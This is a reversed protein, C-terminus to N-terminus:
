FDKVLRVACRCSKSNYSDWHNISINIEYCTNCWTNAYWGYSVNYARESWAEDAGTPIMTSSWYRSSWQIDGPSNGWSSVGTAPLFVAGAAEMLLWQTLSYVNSDFMSAVDHIYYSPIFFTGTPQNWNDPLLIYGRVGNVTGPAQLQDAYPRNYLLYSWEPESLTRWQGATNGGNAIPNHVGWDYQASTNVLNWDAVNVSPGYYGSNDGAQYPLYYRNNLDIPDHYGSTAWAFMDIWGNYTSSMNRNGEGRYDYQSIGFRWVDSSAKYQLNGKSFRVHRNESVSFVGPLTGPENILLSLSIISDCGANNVIAEMYDGSTSYSYNHWTFPGDSVITTDFYTCNCDRAGPVQDQVLRVSYNNSRNYAGLASANRTMSFCYAAGSGGSTSTWYFAIDHSWDGLPLFTAGSAELTLWEEMSYSNVDSSAAQPTFNVSVPRVWTDSLIIFGEIEKTGGNNDPVDRIRGLSFLYAANNRQHLLYDWEANTLLRWLGAGNGGNIIPNYQGWDYYANAGTLDTDAMTISPGYGYQNNQYAVSGEPASEKSQSWPLYNTNLTDSNNHWGSTGWGFLDSWTPYYAAACTIGLMDYQHEAFRWYNASSLYQLNGHAFLVQRGNGVSYLGPAAGIGADGGIMLHLTYISDCGNVATLTDGYDGQETYTHGRWTIGTTTRVATDHQFMPMISVCVKVVSDCGGVAINGLSHEHVGESRLTAGYWRAYGCVTLTATDNESRISSCDVGGGAVITLQLTDVSPCGYMNLYSYTYRGSASFVSDHWRYSGYGTATLFNYTGVRVALHLTDVSFFGNVNSYDYTYTGPISYYVGHWTYGDCADVTTSNHTSYDVSPDTMLLAWISDIYHKTVADQPDTPDQVNKLQSGGASNGLAVVDALTQVEIYDPIVVYSGGTLYITDHGLSLVQVESTIFGMDNTFASLGTPKNTLSNYDGDFGAPLKVFSGGTLFITDHGISLVQVENTLYGADNAFQSILTPKNTLSNYNGDFDPPLVVFSGGTLYITDHGMWLVQKEEFPVGRVSDAIGAYLAYPVSVLQQTTIINFSAGTTLQVESKLYYPGNSWDVVGLDANTGVELSFLGHSNTTATANETYVVTGTASGQILTIRVPMTGNQVLRGNADRVVAQYNFRKPAQAQLACVVLMM